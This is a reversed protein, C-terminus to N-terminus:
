EIVHGNKCLIGFWTCCDTTAVWTTLLPPRPTLVPMRVVSTLEGLQALGESELNSCVM